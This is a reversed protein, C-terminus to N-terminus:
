SIKHTVQSTSLRWIYWLMTLESSSTCGYNEWLASIREWTLGYVHSSWTIKLFKTWCTIKRVLQYLSDFRYFWCNCGDIITTGRSGIQNSLMKYGITTYCFINALWHLIGKYWASMCVCVRACTCVCLVCVTVALRNYCQYLQHNLKNCIICYCYSIHIHHYVALPHMVCEM